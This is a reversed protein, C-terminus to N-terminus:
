RPAFRDSLDPYRAALAGEDEFDVPSGLPETPQPPLGLDPAVVGTLQE